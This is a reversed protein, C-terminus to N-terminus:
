ECFDNMSLDILVARCPAGDSGGLCLPVAFLFYVGTQVERLRIGELLVVETGLLIQHVAMPADEPGVTQSENGILDVKKEAFIGAAELSVVCDGKLLIRQAAAPAIKSARDLIDAADNATLIGSHEAVYAWGAMKSLPIRDVTSGDNIFHYPADIHTGNHACMSFATLNYLDGKDMSCIMQKQPAPDGPYVKAGFVEQSIDYIKM